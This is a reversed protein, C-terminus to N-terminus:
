LAVQSPNETGAVNSVESALNTVNRLAENPKLNLTVGEDNAFSNALECLFRLFNTEHESVEQLHEQLSRSLDAFSETLDITAAYQQACAEVRAAKVERLMVKYWLHQLHETSEERQNTLKNFEAVFNPSAPIQKGVPIDAPLERRMQELFLSHKIVQARVTVFESYIARLEAVTKLRQEERRKEREREGTRWYVLVASFFSLLGVLLTATQPTIGGSQTSTQGLLEVPM